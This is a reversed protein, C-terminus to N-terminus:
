RRRRPNTGGTSELGTESRVVPSDGSFDSRSAIGDAATRDWAEADEGAWETWAAAYEDRLRAEEVTLSFNPKM